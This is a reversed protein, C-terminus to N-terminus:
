KTITNLIPILQRSKMWGGHYGQRHFINDKFFNKEIYKKDLKYNIIIDNTSLFLYRTHDLRNLNSNKTEINSFFGLSHLTSFGVISHIIYSFVYNYFRYKKETISNMIEITKSYDRKHSFFSEICSRFNILPEFLYVKLIIIYNNYKKVYNNFGKYLVGGLSWSVISVEYIEEKLMYTNINNYFDYESEDLNYITSCQAPGFLPIIVNYGNDLFYYIIRRLQLIIGGLGLFIIIHKNNEERKITYIYTGNSIELKIINEIECSLLFLKNILSFFIRLSYPYWLINKETFKIVKNYDNEDRIKKYSNIRKIITEINDIEKKESDYTKQFSNLLHLKEFSESKLLELVFFTINNRDFYFDSKNEIMEKIKKRLKKKDKQKQYYELGILFCISCISVILFSKQTRM